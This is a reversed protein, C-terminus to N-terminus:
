KIKKTTSFTYINTNERSDNKIRKELFTGLEDLDELKNIYLQEYSERMM